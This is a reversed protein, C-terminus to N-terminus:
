EEIKEAKEFIQYMRGVVLHNPHNGIVKKLLDLKDRTIELVPNKKIQLSLEFYDAKTNGSLHTEKNPEMLMDIVPMSALFPSMIGDMEVEIPKDNLDNLQVSLDVKFKTM